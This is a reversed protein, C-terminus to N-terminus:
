QSPTEVKEDSSKVCRLALIRIETDPHTILTLIIKRVSEDLKYNALATLLAELYTFHSRNKADSIQIKLVSYIRPNEVRLNSLAAIRVNESPDSLSRLISEVSLEETEPDHIALLGRIAEERILWDDNSLAKIFTQAALSNRYTALSKLATWKVSKDTEREASQKVADFANQTKFKTLSDLSEIRVRSYEDDVASIILEEARLSRVDAAMDIARVRDTWLSSKYLSEAEEIARSDTESKAVQPAACIINFAAMFILGVLVALRKV